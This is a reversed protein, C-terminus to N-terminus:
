AAERNRASQEFSDPSKRYDAASFAGTVTALCGSLESTLAGIQQRNAKYEASGLRLTRDLAQAAELEARIQNETRQM